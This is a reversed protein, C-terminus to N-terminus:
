GVVLEFAAPQGRQEVREGIANAALASSPDTRILIADDVVAYNVTFIRPGSSKLSQHASCAGSQYLLSASAQARRDFASHPAASRRARKWIQCM